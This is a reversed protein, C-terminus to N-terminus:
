GVIIKERPWKTIFESSVIAMGTKHWASKNPHARVLMLIINQPSESAATCPLNYKSIEGLVIAHTGFDGAFAAKKERHEQGAVRMDALKPFGGYFPQRDSRESYINIPSIAAKFHFFGDNDLVGRPPRVSYWGMDQMLTRAEVLGHSTPIFAAGQPNAQPLPPFTCFRRPIPFQPATTLWHARGGNRLIGQTLAITARALDNHKIPDLSVNFLGMISFIVDLERKSARMTASRWIASDRGDGELAMAGVLALIPERAKGFLYICPDKRVDRLLIGSRGVYAAQILASLEAMATHGSQIVEITGVTLGMWEVDELTQAWKFVCKTSKPLLAEQLTWSRNIWSTPEELEVLKRLGGPVVLCSMCNKFIAAMHQIQWAKDERSKQAICIRDLWIHDAGGKRAAMCLTHLVDLSIPDGDEAGAVAFTASGHDGAVGKWVYSIASYSVKDLSQHESLRLQGKLLSSCHIFRYREPTIGFQAIDLTNGAFTDINCEFTIMANPEHSLRITPFTPISDPADFAYSGGFCPNTEAQNTMETFNKLLNVERGPASGM